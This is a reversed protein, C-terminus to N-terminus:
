IRMEQKLVRPPMLKKYIRIFDARRGARGDSILADKKFTVDIDIKFHKHLVFYINNNILDPYQKPLFTIVTKTDANSVTTNPRSEKNGGVTPQYKEDTISRKGNFFAKIHEGILDNISVCGIDSLKEDMSFDINLKNEEQPLSIRLSNQDSIDSEDIKGDNFVGRTLVERNPGHGSHTADLSSVYLWFSIAYENAFTSAPLNKAGIVLPNNKCDHIHKWLVEEMYDQVNRTPRTKITIYIMVIIFILVIVGFLIALLKLYKKNESFDILKGSSLSKNNKRSANRKNNNVNSNLNNM